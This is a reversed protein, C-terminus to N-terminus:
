ERVSRRGSRIGAAAVVLLVAWVIWFGTTAIAQLSDTTSVPIATWASLASDEKAGDAQDSKTIVSFAGLVWLLLTLRTYTGRTARAARTAPDVLTLMPPILLLLVVIPGLIVGLVVSWGGGAGIWVRGVVYFLPLLVAAPWQGYFVLRSLTPNTVVTGGITLRAARQTTPADPTSM